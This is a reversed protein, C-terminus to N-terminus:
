HVKCEFPPLCAINESSILIKITTVTHKLM